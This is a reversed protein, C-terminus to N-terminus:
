PESAYGQLTECDSFGSGRAAMGPGPDYGVPPLGLGKWKHMESHGDAFSMGSAGGHYEAPWDNMWGVQGADVRFSADNISNQDEDITVFRASPHRVLTLKSYVRWTSWSSPFNTPTGMFMNMSVGRLYTMPNGTCKYLGLSKTYPFLLAGEILSANTQDNANRMDGACWTVDPTSGGSPVLLDQADNAYVTWGAAFQRSNSLCNIGQAKKKAASLAPLLMAALIAIIAIVVLLEILTFGGTTVPGKRAPKSTTSNM